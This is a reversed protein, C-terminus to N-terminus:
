APAEVAGLGADIAREDDLSLAADLDEILLLGDELEAIGAIHPARVPAPRLRELPLSVLGVARDVCLAVRRRAGRAVIFHDSMSPPRAPHGLRRRLEIAVAVEGRHRFVGLV